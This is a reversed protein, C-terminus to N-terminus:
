YLDESFLQKGRYGGEAISKIGADVQLQYGEHRDVFRGTSTVFGQVGKESGIDGIGNVQITAICDHHRHGRIVKGCTTKIAACLCIEPESM